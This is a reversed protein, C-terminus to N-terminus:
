PELIETCDVHCMVSGLPASAMPLLLVQTGSGYCSTSFGYVADPLYGDLDFCHAEGDAHPTCTYSGAKTLNDVHLAGAVADHVVTLSDGQDPCWNVCVGDLCGGNCDFPVEMVRGTHEVCSPCEGQCPACDTSPLIECQHDILNNDDDCRDTLSAELGETTAKVREPHSEGQDGDTCVSPNPDFRTGEHMVGGADSGADFGADGDEVAADLTPDGTGGAGGDGGAFCGAVLLSATL